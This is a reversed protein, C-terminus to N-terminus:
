PEPARAGIGSGSARARAGSPSARGGPRHGRAVLLNGMDRYQPFNVLATGATFTFHWELDSDEYEFDLQEDDLAPPHVL